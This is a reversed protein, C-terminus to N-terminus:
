ALWRAAARAQDVMVEIPRVRHLPLGSVPQYLIMGLHGICGLPKPVGLGPTTAFVQSWLQNMTQHVRAAQAPDGYIKAMLQQDQGEPSFRVDVQFLARGAKHDMLSAGDVALGAPLLDLLLPGLLAADNVLKMQDASLTTM